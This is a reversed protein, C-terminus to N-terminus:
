KIDHYLDVSTGEIWIQGGRGGAGGDGGRGDTDPEEAAENGGGIGKGAWGGSGGYFWMPGAEITNAEIVISGGHGGHGGHGGPRGYTNVESTDADTGIGGAGGVAVCSVQVKCDDPTVNNCVTYVSISGGDGGSGGDRGLVYASGGAGGYANCGAAIQGDNAYLNISGANGGNGGNHGNGGDVCLPGEAYINGVASTHFTFSGGDIPDSSNEPTMSLYIHHGFTGGFIKENPASPYGAYVELKPTGYTYDARVIAEFMNQCHIIVHGRVIITVVFDNFSDFSSPMGTLAVSRYFYEGPGLEITSQNLDGDSGDGEDVVVDSFIEINGGNGGFIPESSSIQSQDPASSGRIDGYGVTVITAANVTAVGFTSGILIAVLFVGLTTKTIM